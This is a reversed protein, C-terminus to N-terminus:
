DYLVIIDPYNNKHKLLKEYFIKLNSTNNAPIIAIHKKTFRNDSLLKIINRSHNLTTNVVELSVSNFKTCIDVFDDSSLQLLITRKVARATISRPEHSLATLEGIISGPLVENLLLTENKNTTVFTAIKGSVLLYLSNSLEGQRFLVKNKNLSVKKFKNLLKLLVADDLPSFVKCSKLLNLLDIKM